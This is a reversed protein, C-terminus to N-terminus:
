THKEWGGNVANVSGTSWGQGTAEVRDRRPTGCSTVEGGRWDDRIRWRGMKGDKGWRRNWPSRPGQSSEILVWM